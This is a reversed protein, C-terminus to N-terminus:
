DSAAILVPPSPSSAVAVPRRALSSPVSDTSSRTPANSTQHRSSSVTRGSLSCFLLLARSFRSPRLNDRAIGPFFASPCDRIRPPNPRRHTAPPPPFPIIPRPPTSLALELPSQMQCSASVFSNLAREAAAYSRSRSGSSLSRSRLRILVVSLRPLPSSIVLLLLLTEDFPYQRNTEKAGQHHHELAGAVM